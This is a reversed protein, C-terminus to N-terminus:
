IPRRNHHATVGHEQLLKLVTGKALGYRPTLRTTPIGDEYDKVLQMIITEGLRDAVRHRRPPAVRDVKRGTQRAAMAVTRARELQKDLNSYRRTADVTNDSTLAHILEISACLLQHRAWMRRVTSEAAAHGLTPTHQM